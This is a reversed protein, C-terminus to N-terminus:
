ANIWSWPSPLPPSILDQLQPVCCGRGGDPGQWLQRGGHLQEWGSGAMIGAALRIRGHRGATMQSRVPYRAMMWRRGCYGTLMWSTDHCSAQMQSRCLLRGSDAEQRSLRGGDLEERSLRCLRRCLPSSRSSSVKSLANCDVAVQARGATM